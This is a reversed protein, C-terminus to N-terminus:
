FPLACPPEPVAAAGDLDGDAAYTAWTGPLFQMPGVARDVDRDGDYRGQDSDPVRAVPGSGDLPVGIIRPAVVGDASVVAGAFSGHGSEVQGIGALLPWTLACRPQEQALRVQAARYAQLVRGPMGGVPPLASGSAAQATTTALTTPSAVPATSVPSPLAPAGPDDLAAAAAAQWPTSVDAQLGVPM